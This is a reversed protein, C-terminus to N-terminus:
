KETQVLLHTCIYLLISLFTNHVTLDLYFQNDLYQILINQKQCNGTKHFMVCQM